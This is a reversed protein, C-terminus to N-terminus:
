KSESEDIFDVFPCIGKKISKLTNWLIGFVNMIKYGTTGIKTTRHTIKKGIFKFFKSIKILCNKIFKEFPSLETKEKREKIKERREKNKERAKQFGNLKFELFERIFDVTTVIKIMILVFLSSILLCSIVLIIWFSFAVIIKWLLGLGLVIVSSLSCLVWGIFCSIYFIGLSLWTLVGAIVTPLVPLIKILLYGGGFILFIIFSTITIFLFIGMSIHTLTIAPADKIRNSTKDIKDSFFFNEDLFDIIKKWFSDM